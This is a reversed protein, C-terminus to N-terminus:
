VAHHSLSRYSDGNLLYRGTLIIGCEMPTPTPPYFISHGLLLTPIKGALTQSLTPFDRM